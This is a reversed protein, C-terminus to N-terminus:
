TTEIIGNQLAYLTLEAPSQLQLKKMINKRHTYVTHPSLHLMDAIQRAIYGKVVLQVVEIERASLPSPACTATTRGLSKELLVDLIKSCFFKDGRVTARVADSVEQEGCSKT